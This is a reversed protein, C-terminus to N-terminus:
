QTEQTTSREPRIQARDYPYGPLAVGGRPLPRRAFQGHEIRSLTAGSIRALGATEVRTTSRSKRVQRGITRAEEADMGPFPISV